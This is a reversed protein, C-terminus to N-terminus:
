RPDLEMRVQDSAYTWWLEDHLTIQSVVAERQEQTLPSQSLEEVAMGIVDHNGSIRIYNDFIARSLLRSVTAKLYAVSIAGFPGLPPNEQGIGVRVCLYEDPTVVSGLVPDDCSWPDGDYTSFAFNDGKFVVDLCCRLVKREVGDRLEEDIADALGAAAGEKVKYSLSPNNIIGLVAEVARQDQIRGLAQAVASSVEENEDGLAQILKDVARSDGQKGLAEAVNERVGPDEDNLAIMLPGVSRVDQIRCLAYAACFRAERSKNVLCTCLHLVAPGGVYELFSAASMAEWHTMNDDTMCAVLAEIDPVTGKRVEEAVIGVLWGNPTKVEYANKLFDKWEEVSASQLWKRIGATDANKLADVVSVSASKPVQPETSAHPYLVTETIDGSSVDVFIRRLTLKGDHFIVEHQEACKSCELRGGALGLRSDVRIEGDAVDLPPLDHRDCFSSKCKLCAANRFVAYIALDDQKSSSECPMKEEAQPHNKAGAEAPCNKREHGKRQSATKRTAQGSAGDGSAHGRSCEESAKKGRKTHIKSESSTKKNREKRKIDQIDDPQASMPKVQEDGSLDGACHEGGTQHLHKLIRSFWSFM